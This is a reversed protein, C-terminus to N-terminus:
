NIYCHYGESSKTLSGDIYNRCNSIKENEASHFPIIVCENTIHLLYM